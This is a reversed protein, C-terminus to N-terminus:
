WGQFNLGGTVRGFTKDDVDIDGPQRSASDQFADISVRRSGLAAFEIPPVDIDMAARAMVVAIAADGHRYQGDAGKYRKSDPVKPVGREMVIARLDALVDADKPLLLTRDEFCAKLRPMHERYWEASLMVEAIRSGYRQAAVEALYQGNGRADMAGGLFKPLHDVLHFLIQEQQRFPVNRLELVFPCVMDLNRAEQVPVIVSLDGSRAFDMGYYSRLEPDLADLLPDLHESLWTDVFATRDPDPKHTFDDVVSLRLVHGPEPMCRTILERTLYAGGGAKPICFLEEDADAGYFAVTDDRWEKESEVSWTTAKRLCIRKYLGEELADDFTIRHLSYPKKKARIDEVLENFPNAAGNHTSIIAVRGGWILLAIAAKLLEGLQDHFAAEDIIVFGQKGRLNSPRSSLATVRYGSAFRVRFIQIDKDEDKLVDEEVAQAALDFSRAWSAVDNIFELAMDKNYGIYWVDMGSAEAASLAADAAQAWSLGIRRGKECVKIPSPDDVWRQQYPLFIAPPSPTATMM